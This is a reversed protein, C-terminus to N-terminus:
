ATTGREELVKVAVATVNKTHSSIVLFCVYNCVLVAVSVICTGLVVGAHVQVVYREDTLPPQQDNRALRAHGYYVIDKMDMINATPHM